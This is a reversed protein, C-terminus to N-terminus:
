RQDGPNRQMEDSLTGNSRMLEDNVARAKVDATKASALEAEVRSEEAFREALTMKQEASATDASALKARAESLEAPAYRGAEAGEAQSIARQAAQMSASPAPPTSACAALM